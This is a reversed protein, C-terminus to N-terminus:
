HKHKNHNGGALDVAEAGARDDETLLGLQYHGCPCFANTLTGTFYQQCIPCKRWVVFATCSPCLDNNDSDNGAYLEGGM